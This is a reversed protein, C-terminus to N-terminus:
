AQASGPIAAPASASVGSSPVQTAARFLDLLAHGQAAGALYTPTAGTTYGPNDSVLVAYGANLAAAINANEYDSGRAM